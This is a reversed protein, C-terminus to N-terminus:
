KPTKATLRKLKSCKSCKYDTCTLRTLSNCTTPQKGSEVIIDFESKMEIQNILVYDHKCFLSKIM